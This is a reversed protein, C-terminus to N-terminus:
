IFNSDNKDIEEIFNIIASKCEEYYCEEVKDLIYNLFIVIDKQETKIM